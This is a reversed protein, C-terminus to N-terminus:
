DAAFLSLLPQGQVKATKSDERLKIFKLAQQHSLRLSGDVLGLLSDPSVVLINALAALEDMRENVAAMGLEKMCDTYETVDRKWRLAGTPSFSYRQMHNLLLAHTRRGVQVATDAAAEAASWRGDSLFCLAGPLSGAASWDPHVHLLGAVPHVVHRAM